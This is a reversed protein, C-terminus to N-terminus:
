IGYDNLPRVAPSAKQAPKQEPAPASPPASKSSSEGGLRASRNKGTILPLMDVTLMETSASPRPSAQPSGKAPSEKASQRLQAEPTSASNSRSPVALLLILGAVVVAGALSLTLIVRRRDAAFWALAERWSREFRPPIRFRVAKVTLPPPPTQADSSREVFRVESLQQARRGREPPALQPPQSPRPPAGLWEQPSGGLGLATHAGIPRVSARAPLPESALQAIYEDARQPAAEGDGPEDCTEVSAHDGLPEV